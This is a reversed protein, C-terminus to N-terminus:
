PCVEAQPLTAPARRDIPRGVTLADRLEPDLEHLRSDAEVGLADILKAFFARAAATAAVDFIEADDLGHDRLAAVDAETISAADGAVKEAYAMVAREADTLAGADRGSAMARVQATPMYRTLAEAHALACYSNGLARAAAITALEFRRRTMHHRIGAQLDAWLAMLGPRHCFALAYNPVHGYRAQQSAYLERVADGAHEPPITRIFTM